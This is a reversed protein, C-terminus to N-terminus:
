NSIPELDACDLEASVSRQLLDISIILRDKKKLDLIIGECGMLPGNVVKVMQGEKLYPIPTSANKGNLIKKISEIQVEPISIPVNGNGLMRVIGPTKVIELWRYRDAMEYVFLYRPFLPEQLRLNVKDEHRSRTHVAYWYFDGNRKM